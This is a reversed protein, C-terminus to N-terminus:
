AKMQIESKTNRGDIILKRVIKGKRAAKIRAMAPDNEYQKSIEIDDIIYTHKIEASSFKDQKADFLFEDKIAKLDAIPFKASLFKEQLKGPKPVSKKVSLSYEGSKLALLLIYENFKEVFKKFKDAPLTQDITYKKGTKKLIQIGYGQLEEETDKTSVIVGKLAVDAKALKAFLEFMCDLYEFGAQINISKGSIKLYFVEKPFTGVSYRVFKKHTWDDIKNDFINKIHNM